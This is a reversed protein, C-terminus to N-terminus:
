RAIERSTGKRHAHLAIARHIVHLDNRHDYRRCACSWDLKARSRGCWDRSHASLSGGSDGRQDDHDSAISDAGSRQIADLKKVRNGNRECVARDLNRKEFRTRCAYRSRGTLLHQVTTWSDTFFKGFPMKLFM